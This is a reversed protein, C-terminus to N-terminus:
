HGLYPSLHRVDGHTRTRSEAVLKGRDHHCKPCEIRLPSNTNPM